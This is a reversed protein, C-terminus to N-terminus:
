LAVTGVFQANELRGGGRIILRQQTLEDDDNNNKVARRAAGGRIVRRGRRGWGAPGRSRRGGGGDGTGEVKAGGGARGGKFEVKRKMESLDEVSKLVMGEARNYFRIEKRHMEFITSIIERFQGLKNGAISIKDVIYPLAVRSGSEVIKMVLQELLGHLVREIGGGEGDRAGEGTGPPSMFSKMQVIRDLVVFYFGSGDGEDEEGKKQEKRECLDLAAGLVGKLEVLEGVDEGMRLRTKVEVVDNELKRLMLELAEEM